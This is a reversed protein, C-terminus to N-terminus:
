DGLCPHNKRYNEGGRHDSRSMPDLPGESTGARHHLEMPNGDPGIPARGEQMRALLGRRRGFHRALWKEVDYNSIRRALEQPSVGHENPRTKSAGWRLLLQIMEGRGRSEFVARFLPTNGEDDARDVEAGAALLIEAVQLRHDQAVYHLPTWGRRDRADRSSGGALLMRAIQPDGIIAAHHLPSRGDRDVVNPDDGAEICARVVGPDSALVAALVREM